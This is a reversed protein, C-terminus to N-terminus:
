AAVEVAAEWRSPESFRKELFALWDPKQLPPLSMFPGEKRSEFEAVTNVRYDTKIETRPGDILNGYISGMVMPRNMMAVSARLMKKDILMPYHIQYNVLPMKEARLRDYAARLYRGHISGAYRKCLDILMGKSHLEISSVPQLFMHDDDLLLFPDSLEATICMRRYKERLNIAKDNTDTMPLNTADKLWKPQYGVIYLDRLELHLNASVSRLSYRLEADGSKSGGRKIPYVLDIM